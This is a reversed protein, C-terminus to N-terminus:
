LPSVPYMCLKIPGEWPEDPEQPGPIGQPEAHGGHSRAGDGGAAPGEEGPGRWAGRYM